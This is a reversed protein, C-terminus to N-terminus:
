SEFFLNGSLATAHDQNSNNHNGEAAFRRAIAQIKQAEFLIRFPKKDASLRLIKQGPILAPGTLVQADPGTDETSLHYRKASATEVTALAVWGKEIAPDKVLSVTKVGQEADAKLVMRLVPAVAIDAATLSALALFLPTHLAKPMYVFAAGGLIKSPNLSVWCFFSLHHKQYYAWVM